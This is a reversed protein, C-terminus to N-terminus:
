VGLAKSAMETGIRGGAGPRNEVIVQQGLQETLAQSIIRASADIGGGPPFPSILRIPKAPWPQAVATASGFMAASMAIIITCRM